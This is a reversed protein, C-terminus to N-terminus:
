HKIASATASRINDIRKRSPPKRRPGIVQEPHLNATKTRLWEFSAPADDLRVGVLKCLTRVDSVLNRRRSASLTSDADIAALVGAM